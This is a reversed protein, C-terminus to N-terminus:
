ATLFFFFMGRIIIDKIRGTIACYGDDGIVAEDGTYMWLVGDERIMVENTKQPNNFYGKQLLYGSVCLEGRTGRPVIHGDPDVVKASTHPLIRGVTLLKKELPDDVSSMFSAPSTETMGVVVYIVNIYIWNICYQYCCLVTCHFMGYTVVLDSLGFADRLEEMLARPVSAGAAIGTRLSIKVGNLVRHQQLVAVFMTPVGHLGTCKEEILSRIVANADFTQAPLVM